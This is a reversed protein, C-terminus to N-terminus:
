RKIQSRFYDKQKFTVLKKSTKQYGYAFNENDKASIKLYSKSLLNFVMSDIFNM